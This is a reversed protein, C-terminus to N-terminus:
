ESGAATWHRLLRGDASWLRAQGGFGGAVVRGDGPHLAAALVWDDYGDYTQTVRDTALDIKLVRRSASSVLVFGDGHVIGTGPGGLAVDAVRKGGSVDWRHLKGDDGVSLVQKGGATFAVGRVAAGHGKYTALLRGSDVELVAASRDRSATVLRTGDDSWALATVWDVHGSWSTAPELTSRDIVRVSRDAAAIALQDRGPRFAVDLVVDDSRGVVATVKGTAIEVLRVEGSRGPEGCAVAMMTGAPDFAIAYIRQGLNGIREVLRGDDADWLTLEHYGGLLVRSGDPSFAVATLAVGPYTEPPRPYEPPPIVFTLPADGDEVDPEGGAAIWRTFLEIQEATLPESEAPMRESEDETTLRRLLESSEPHRATVAALESDGPTVLANYTDVRYGGEANKASHCAVCHEQLIPALQRSFSVPATARDAEAAVARGCLPLLLILLTAPHKAANM